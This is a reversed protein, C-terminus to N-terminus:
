DHELSDVINSGQSAVVIDGFGLVGTQHVSHDCGVRLHDDTRVRMADLHDARGDQWEGARVVVMRTWWRFRVPLRYIFPNSGCPMEVSHNIEVLDRSIGLM